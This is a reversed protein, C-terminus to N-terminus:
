AISYLIIYGWEIYYSIIYNNVIIYTNHCLRTYHNVLDHSGCSSSSELGLAGLLFLFPDDATPESLSQCAWGGIRLWCGSSSAVGEWGDGVM